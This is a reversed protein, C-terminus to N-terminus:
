KKLREKVYQADGCFDNLNETSDKNTEILIWSDNKISKLFWDLDYNGKGLHLHDDDLTEKWGDSLHILSPQLSLFQMIVEKYDVNEAIASCIAHGYDLCIGMGVDKAILKIDNPNYGVCLEGGGGIKPKNEILAHAFIEPMEKKAQKMNKISNELSGDIGPHFVVYKPHLCHAYMNVEYLIHEEAETLNPKAWNLGMYSHPAHLCFPIDLKTWLPLCGTSGPVVSLEVFDFFKEKYLRVVSDIYFDNTSWLKLGIRM